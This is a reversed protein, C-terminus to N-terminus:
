RSTGWRRAEVEAAAAILRLGAERAREPTLEVTYSKSAPGTAIGVDLVVDREPCTSVRVSAREPTTVHLTKAEIWHDAM